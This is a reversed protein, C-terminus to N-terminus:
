RLWEAACHTCLTSAPKCGARVRLTTGHWFYCCAHPVWCCCRSDRLGRSQQAAWVHLRLPGFLSASRGLCAPLAAWAHLGLPGVMGQILNAHCLNDVQGARRAVEWLAVHQSARMRRCNSGAPRRKSGVPCRTSAARCCMSRCACLLASSLARVSPQCHRGALLCRIGPLPALICSAYHVGMHNSRCAPSKAQHCVPASRPPHLLRRRSQAAGGLVCVPLAQGAISCVVRAHCSCVPQMAPEAHITPCVLWALGRMLSHGQLGQM